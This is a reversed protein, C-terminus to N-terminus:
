VPIPVGATISLSVAEGAEVQVDLLGSITRVGGGLDADADVRIQVAGLVGAPVFTASLGDAAVELAGYVAESVTWGPVGDVRAPNGAADVPLISLPLKYGVVLTVMATEGPVTVRLCGAGIRWWLMMRRALRQETVRVLAGLVEILASDDRDTTRSESRM